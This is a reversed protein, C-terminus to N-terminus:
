CYCSPKVRCGGRRGYLRVAALLRRRVVGVFRSPKRLGGILPQLRVAVGSRHSLHVLDDQYTLQEIRAHNIRVNELIRGNCSVRISPDVILSDILVGKWHRRVWLTSAVCANFTWHSTSWCLAGKPSQSKKM